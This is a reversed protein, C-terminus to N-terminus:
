EKAKVASKAYEQVTSIAWLKYVLFLCKPTYMWLKIGPGFIAFILLWTAMFYVFVVEM